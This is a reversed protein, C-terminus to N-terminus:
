EDDDAMTPRGCITELADVGAQCSVALAAMADPNGRATEVAKLFAQHSEEMAKKSSPPLQEACREWLHFYRQCIGPLESPDAPLPKAHREPPVVVTQLPPAPAVLAEREAERQKAARLQAWGGVLAVVIVAGVGAAALGNRLRRRRAADMRAGRDEDNAHAQALEERVRQLEEELRENRQRLAEREDRYTTM